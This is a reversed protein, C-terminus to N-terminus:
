HSAPLTRHLLWVLTAIPAIYITAWTFAWRLSRLLNGDCDHRDRAARQIAALTTAYFVIFVVPVILEVVLWAVTLATLAVFLTALVVAGLATLADCGDLGVDCGCTPDTTMGEIADAGVRSPAHFFHDDELQYGRHLLVTLALGGLTWWALLVLEVEIWRAQHFLWPFLGATLTMAGLAALATARGSLTPVFTAAVRRLRAQRIERTTAQGQKWEATADRREIEEAPAIVPSARFGLWVGVAACVAAFAMLFYHDTQSLDRTRWLYGAGGLCTIAVFVGL